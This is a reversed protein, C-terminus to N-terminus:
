NRWGASRFNLTVRKRGLRITFRTLAAGGRLGARLAPYHHKRPSQVKAVHSPLIRRWDRFNRVLLLSISCIDTRRLKNAAAVAEITPKVAVKAIV